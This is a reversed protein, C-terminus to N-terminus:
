YGSFSLLIKVNCGPFKKQPREHICQNRDFEQTM